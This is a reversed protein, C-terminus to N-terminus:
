IMEAFPAPGLAHGFSSRILVALQDTLGSHFTLHFPFHSVLSCPLADLISQSWSHYTKKCRLDGCYYHQGILYTHSDINIVRRPMRPWSLVHLYIVEGTSTRHSASKCSPCPIQHFLHPLCIFYRPLYFMSPALQTQNTPCFMPAPPEEIFCGADYCSPQRSQNTSMERKLRECMDDYNACLWTPLPSRPKGPGGCRM